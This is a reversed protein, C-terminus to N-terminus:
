IPPGRATSHTCSGAARAPTGPPALRSTIRVVRADASRSRDAYEVQRNSDTTTLAYLM